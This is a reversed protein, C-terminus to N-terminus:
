KHVLALRFGVEPRRTAKAIANRAAVDTNNGPDAFSTGKQIKDDGHLMHIGRSSNTSLNGVATDACMEAVNGRMDYFGWDNPPKAGVAHTKGDANEAIWGDGGGDNAAYEWQDESPLAYRYNEPLRAAARETDHIRRCFEDAENWTINEVPHKAGKNQSPNNEAGMIAEWQEQTVEYKGLWFPNTIPIARRREGSTKYFSGAAVPLLELTINQPLSLTRPSPRPPPPELPPSSPSTSAATAAPSTNAIFPNRRRSFWRTLVAVAFAALIAIKLRATDGTPTPSLAPHLPTSDSATVTATLAAFDPHTAALKEYSETIKKVLELKAMGAKLYNTKLHEFDPDAATRSHLKERASAIAADAFVCDNLLTAAEATSTNANTNAHLLFARIQPTFFALTALNRQATTHDASPRTFRPAIHWALAFALAAALLSLLLKKM